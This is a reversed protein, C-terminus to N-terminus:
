SAPKFAERVAQREVWFQLAVLLVASVLLGATAASWFGVAGLKPPGFALWYGGGIGVGWLALVYIVMPLTAVHHARLVSASLTQVADGLHFFWIWVLLPLAAAAAAADNTYMAVIPERALAVVGGLAAAV